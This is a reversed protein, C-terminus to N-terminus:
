VVENTVPKDTFKVVGSAALKHSVLIKDGKVYKPSVDIRFTKTGHGSVGGVTVATGNVKVGWEAKVSEYGKNDSLTVLIEYGNGLGKASVFTTDNPVPPVVAGGNVCPHAKLIANLETMEIIGNDAHYLKKSGDNSIEPHNDMATYVKGCEVNKEDNGNFDQLNTVGKALAYVWIRKAM